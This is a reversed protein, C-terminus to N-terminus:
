FVANRDTRLQTGVLRARYRGEDAFLIIGKVVVEVSPGEHREDGIGRVTSVGRGEGKREKLFFSM